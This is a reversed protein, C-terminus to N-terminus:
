DNIISNFLGHYKIILNIIIEALSSGNIIVKVPKYYVMQTLYNIIVLILEYNNDM